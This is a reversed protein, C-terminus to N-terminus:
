AHFFESKETKLDFLTVMRATLALRQALDRLHNPSRTRMLVFLDSFATLDEGCESAHVRFFGNRDAWGAESGDLCVVVPLAPRQGRARLKTLQEIRSPFAM